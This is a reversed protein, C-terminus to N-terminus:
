GTTAEWHGSFKPARSRSTLSTTRTTCSVWRTPKATVCAFRSRTGTLRRTDWPTSGGDPCSNTRGVDARHECGEIALHGMKAHSPEFPSDFGAEILAESTTPGISLLVCRAVAARWETALGLEGAVQLLNRLQQASTFMLADFEGAITRHIAAHLPALDVPLAWAYVPIPEVRAGLRELGAYLEPTPQGYEQVAVTRGAVALGNAEFLEVVERWTNPEAARHDIRLGREKAVPVPKPGRAVITLRNIAAVVESRDFRTCAADLLARTGVGTMLVLAVYGGEGALIREVFAIALHHDELRVERMSPAVSAAAGARVLLAAIEHQRRSEFSCVRPLSLM